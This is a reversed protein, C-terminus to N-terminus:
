RADNPHVGSLWFEPDGIHVTAVIKKGPQLRAFDDASRVPFEMSMPEMWDCIKEHKIVATRVQPDVRIVEGRVECTRESGAPKPSSCSVVALAAPLLFSLRVLRRM